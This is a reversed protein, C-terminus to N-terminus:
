TISITTLTMTILSVTILRISIWSIFDISAHVAIFTGNGTEIARCESRLGWVLGAASVVRRGIDGVAWGIRGIIRRSIPVSRCTGISVHWVSIIILTITTMMITRLMISPISGNVMAILLYRDIPTVRLHRVSRISGDIIAAVVVDLGVMVATVVVRMRGNIVAFINLRM